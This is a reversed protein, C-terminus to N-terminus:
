FEKLMQAYNPDKSLTAPQMDKMDRWAKYKAAAAPFVLM